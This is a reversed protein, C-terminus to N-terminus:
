FFHLSINSLSALPGSVELTLQQQAQIHVTLQTRLTERERELDVNNKHIQELEKLMRKKEMKEEKAVQM